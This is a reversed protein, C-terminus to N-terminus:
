FPCASDLLRRCILDVDSEDVIGREYQRVIGPAHCECLLMLIDFTMSVHSLGFFKQVISM